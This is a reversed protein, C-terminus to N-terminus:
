MAVSMKWDAKILDSWSRRTRVICDTEDVNVQLELGAAENFQALMDNLIAEADDATCLHPLCM